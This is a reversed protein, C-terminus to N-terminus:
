DPSRGLTQTISRGDWTTDSLKKLELSRFGGIAANYGAFDCRITNSQWEPRTVGPESAGFKPVKADGM